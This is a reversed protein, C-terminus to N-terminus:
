DHITEKKATRKSIFFAVAVTLLGISTFFPLINVRM